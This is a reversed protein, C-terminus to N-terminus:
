TQKQELEKLEGTDININYQKLDIKLRKNIQEVLQNQHQELNGLERQVNFEILQRKLQINQFELKEETSLALGNKKM